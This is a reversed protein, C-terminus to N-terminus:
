RYIGTYELHVSYEDMFFDGFFWGLHTKGDAHAVSLLSCSLTGFPGLVEYSELLSWIHVAILM